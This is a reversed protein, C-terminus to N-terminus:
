LNSHRIAMFKVVALKRLRVIKSLRYILMCRWESLFDASIPVSMLQLVLQDRHQTKPQHPMPSPLNDKRSDSPVARSNSSNIVVQKKSLPSNIPLTPLNNQRAERALRAM